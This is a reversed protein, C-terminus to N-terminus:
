SHTQGHWRRVEVRRNLYREFVIRTQNKVQYRAFLSPVHIQRHLQLHQLSPVQFAIVGWNELRSGSAYVHLRARTAVAGRTVMKIAM